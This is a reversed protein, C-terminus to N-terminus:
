LVIMENGLMGLDNIMITNTGYNVYFLVVGFSSIWYYYSYPKAECKIKNRDFVDKTYDYIKPYRRVIRDIDENCTIEVVVPNNFALKLYSLYLEVLGEGNMGKLSVLESFLNQDVIKNIYDRDELGITNDTRCRYHPPAYLFGKNQSKVFEIYCYNRQISTDRLICQKYLVDDIEKVKFRNKYSSPIIGMARYLYEKLTIDSYYEQEFISYVAGKTNLLRVAAFTILLTIIGYTIIKRPGM